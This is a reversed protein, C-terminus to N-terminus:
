FLSKQFDNIESIQQDTFGARQRAAVSVRAARRPIKNRLNNLRNAFDDEASLGEQRCLERYWKLGFRVHGIEEDAIVKVINRPNKNAAGSLKALIADGSDLGSAELYCHVILVRDLLTDECSTASWLNLQTPWDGWQFGLQSIGDLCMKLHRAEDLTIQALEDRFFKPADNFEHLTRLGLEMAQLEINALHHLLHAQGEATQLGKRPQAFKKDLLSLDRAPTNPVHFDAFIKNKPQLILHHCESEVVALKEFVSAIHLTSTLNQTM